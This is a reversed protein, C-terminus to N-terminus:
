TGNILLSLLDDSKNFSNFPLFLIERLSLREEVELQVLGVLESLPVEKSQSQLPNPHSASIIPNFFGSLETQHDQSISIWSTTTLNSVKFRRSSVLKVFSLGFIISTTDNSQTQLAFRYINCTFFFFSSTFFLYPLFCSIPIITM